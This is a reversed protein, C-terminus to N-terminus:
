LNRRGTRLRVDRAAHKMVTDAIVRGDLEVTVHIPRGAGAGATIIGPAVAATALAPAATTAAGAPIELALGASKVKGMMAALARDITDADSGLGEVLGRVIGAGYTRFVRSPSFLGFGSTFSDKLDSIKDGIWGTLSSWKAKIGEFFGAILDYGTRWLTAGLDGIAGTVKAKINRFGAVERDWIAKVGNFLGAVLNQGIHVLFTGAAGIAGVIRRGLGTWFAVERAWWGKIGNFLGAVLNQGLGVLLLGFNALAAVIRGPLATFFGVVENLARTIVGLIANFATVALDKIGDWAAALLAKIGDWAAAAGAKIGDWALGALAVLAPLIDLFVQKVLNLVTTIETLVGRILVTVLDKIGHWAAGWDGKILAMVIRVVAQIAKM